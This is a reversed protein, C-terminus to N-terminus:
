PLIQARGIEVRRSPFKDISRTIERTDWISPKRQKVQGDKDILVLSFGEPRLWQRWESRAAPDADVIVVVDREILVGPSRELMAIQGAFSPDAETDAFIVLPRSVGVLERPAVDAAQKLPLEPAAPQPAPAEVVPTDVRPLQVPGPPPASEGMAAILPVALLLVWNMRM